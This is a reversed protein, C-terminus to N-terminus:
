TNQITLQVKNALAQIFPHYLLPPLSLWRESSSTAPIELPRLRPVPVYRAEVVHARHGDDSSFFHLQPGISSPEILAVPRCPNGHVGVFPAHQWAARPSDGDILTASRQWGSMRFTILRLFDPPLLISGPGHGPAHEWLVPGGFPQGEGLDLLPADKVVEAAVTEVMSTILENLTLADVDGEEVLSQCADNMHLAVRVDRMIDQLFGGRFGVQFGGRGEGLSPTPYRGRGEWLSPTSPTSPSPTSTSPSSTPIPNPSTM